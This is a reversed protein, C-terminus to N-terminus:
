KQSCHTVWVHRQALHSSHQAVGWTQITSVAVHDRGGNKPPTPVCPYARSEPWGDRAQRGRTQGVPNTGSHSRMCHSQVSPGHKHLYARDLIAFKELMGAEKSEEGTPVTLGSLTCHLTLLFMDAAAVSPEFQIVCSEGMTKDMYFCCAPSFGGTCSVQLKMFFYLAALWGMHKQPRVKSREMEFCLWTRQTVEYTITRTERVRSQEKCFVSSLARIEIVKKRSNRTMLSTFSSLLPSPM